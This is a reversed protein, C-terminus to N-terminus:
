PALRRTPFSWSWVVMQQSTLHTLGDHDRLWPRLPLVRHGGAAEEDGQDAGQSVLLAPIIARLCLSSTPPYALHSKGLLGGGGELAGLVRGGRWCLGRYVSSCLLVKKLFTNIGLFSFICFLVLFKLRSTCAVGQCSAVAGLVPPQPALCGQPGSPQSHQGQVRAEVWPGKLSCLSYPATGVPDGCIYSPGMAWCPRQYGKPMIFVWQPDM